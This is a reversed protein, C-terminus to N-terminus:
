PDPSGAGQSPYGPGGQQTSYKTKKARLAARILFVVAFYGIFQSAAFYSIRMWVDHSQVGLIFGSMSPLLLVVGTYFLLPAHGWFFGTALFIGIITCPVSTAIAWLATRLIEKRNIM